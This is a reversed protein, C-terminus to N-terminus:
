LKIGEKGLQMLKQGLAAELSALEKHVKNIKDTIKIFENYINQQKELSPIPVFIEEFINLNLSPITSGTFKDFIQEQVLSSNLAIALYGTNVIKNNPMVSIVHRNIPLGDFENSVIAACGRHTGIANIIIENANVRKINKPMKGKSTYSLSDKLLEMNRIAAPGIFPIEGSEDAILPAGRKFDIILEKLPFSQYGQSLNISINSKNKFWYNSYHLNDSDLYDVWFGSKSPQFKAGKRFEIIKNITEELYINEVSDNKSMDDISSMFCPKEQRKQDKAIVIISTRLGSQPAFTQPPLSIITEIYYNSIFYERAKKYKSSLLFGDSIVAIIKGSPKIIRLAEELYISTSDRIGLRFLQDNAQYDIKTNIPPVMLVTDAYSNPASVKGLALSPDYKYNGEKGTFLLQQFKIWFNEDLNTYHPIINNISNLYASSIIIGYKSFLNLIKEDKVSNTLKILLEALWRPTNWEHSNEKFLQDIFLSVQLKYKLLEVGSEELRLLAEEFIKKPNYRDFNSTENNTKLITDYEKPLIQSGEIERLVKAYLVLSIDYLYNGTIHFNRLFESFHLLIEKSYELESLTNQDFQEYPIEIISEPRGSEGTKLWLFHEGDSLIYYKAGLEKADKQLIRAILHYGIEDSLTLNLNLSSLKKIEIAILIKDKSKVVCDIRKKSNILYDFFISENPYGLKILHKRIKDLLSKETEM